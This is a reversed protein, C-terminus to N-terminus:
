KDLTGHSAGRCQQRSFLIWPSWTQSPMHMGSDHISSPWFSQLSPESSLPIQLTRMVVRTKFVLRGMLFTFVRGLVLYLPRWWARNWIACEWIWCLTSISTSFILQKRLLMMESGIVLLPIKYPEFYWTPINKWVM